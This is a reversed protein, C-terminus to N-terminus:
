ATLAAYLRSVPARAHGTPPIQLRRSRSRWSRSSSRAPSGAASTATARTRCRSRSSSRPTDAPAMGIFSATYGRYCGCARRRPQATGTKGAVRYGPIAAMRRPARARVVVSELMRACRPPPRRPQRGPDETPAAAPTFTGDPATTGAVLTPQSACATTPSPRTCRPRRCRTSRSARASRRDHLSRPRGTGGSAAPHRPERGPLRARDARRRRVEEPLPLAHRPASRARGGHDHRHQEVQRPRRHPDPARAGTRADDHFTKGARHLRRCSSAADDPTVGGEEIVAAATM